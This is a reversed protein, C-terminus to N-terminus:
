KGRGKKARKREGDFRVHNAPDGSKGYYKSETANSRERFNRGGAMFIAALEELSIPKNAM